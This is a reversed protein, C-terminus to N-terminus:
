PVLGVRTLFSVSVSLVCPSVRFLARITTQDAM